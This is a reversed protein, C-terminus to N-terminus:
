FLPMAYSLAVNLGPKKASDHEADALVSVGRPFIAIAHSLHPSSKVALMVTCSQM